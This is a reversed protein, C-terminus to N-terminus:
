CHVQIPSPKTFGKTRIYQKIYPCSSQLSSDLCNFDLIPKYISGDEEPYIRIELKTRFDLVEEESLATTNPDEVYHDNLNRIEYNTSNINGDKIEIKNKKNRTNRNQELYFTSFFVKM